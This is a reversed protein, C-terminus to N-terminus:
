FLLRQTVQKHAHPQEISLGECLWILQRRDIQLVTDEGTHQWRFVGTSLKKYMLWFGNTDWKLIKMKDAAKNIFVYACDAFPDYGFVAEVVVALSEIGRRMDCPVCSVFVKSGLDTLM